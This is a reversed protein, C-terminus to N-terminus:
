KAFRDNNAITLVERKLSNRLAILEDVILDADIEVDASVTLMVKTLNHAKVDLQVASVYKSIDVGNFTITGLGTASVSLKIKAVDSENM